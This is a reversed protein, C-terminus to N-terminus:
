HHGFIQAHTLPKRAAVIQELANQVDLSYSQCKAISLNWAGEGLIKAENNYANNLRKLYNNYLAGACDHLPAAEAKPIEVAPQNVPQVIVNGNPQWRIDLPQM